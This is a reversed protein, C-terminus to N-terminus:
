VEIELVTRFYVRYLECSIQAVNGRLQVLAMSELQYALTPDLISPAEIVQALAQRLGPEAKLTQWLRRLHHSYIGAQTPAIKLLDALSLEDQHLSYFALQLLYPVEWFCIM